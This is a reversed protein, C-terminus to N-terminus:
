LSFYLPPARTSLTRLAQAPVVLPQNPSAQFLLPLYIALALAVVLVQQGQLVWLGISCGQPDSLEDNTYAHYLAFGSFLLIYIILIIGILSRIRKNKNLFIRKM